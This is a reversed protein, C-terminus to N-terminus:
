VVSKRDGFGASFPRTLIDVPKAVENLVDKWWPLDLAERAKVDAGVANINAAKQADTAIKTSSASGSGSSKKGLPKVKATAQAKELQRSISERNLASPSPMFAAMEKDSRFRNKPGTSGMLSNFQIAFQARREEEPSM